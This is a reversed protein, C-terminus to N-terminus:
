INYIDPKYSKLNDRNTFWKITENLGEQLSYQVNWNTLKIIKKNSGLLRQVESKKPRFRM